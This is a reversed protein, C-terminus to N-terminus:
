YLKPTKITSWLSFYVIYTCLPLKSNKAKFIQEMKVNIIEFLLYDLLFAQYTIMKLLGFTQNKLPCFSTLNELEPKGGDFIKGKAASECRFYKWSVTAIKGLYQSKM